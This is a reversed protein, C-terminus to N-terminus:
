TDSRPCKFRDTTLLAGPGAALSLVQGFCQATSIRPSRKSAVQSRRKQDGCPFFSCSDDAYRSPGRGDWIDTQKHPPRPPPLHPGQHERGGSRDSAQWQDIYPRTNMCCATSVSAEVEAHAPPPSGGVGLKRPLVQGRRNAMPRARVLIQLTFRLVDATLELPCSHM